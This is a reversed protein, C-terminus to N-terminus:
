FRVLMCRIITNAVLGLGTVYVDWIIFYGGMCVYVNLIDTDAVLGQGTNYIDWIIGAIDLNAKM